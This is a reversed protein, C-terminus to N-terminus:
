SVQLVIKGFKGATFAMEFAKKAQELPLVTGVVAKVHGKDILKGLEVLQGRNSKVIFFVGRVGLEPAPQEISEGAISVLVGGRKLLPWSHQQTDGGLSDLVVDLDAAHDEFRQKTYDIVEDAGLSKVLEINRPHATTIVHAGIFRALQIAFTGVGGAGGHILIRQGKKLHAHDFLAQWATLGSLPVSAAQIADLTTPKPALDAASVAIYEAATGNRFFSTLAYVPAGPTLNVVDPNAAVDPAFAEIIGCLEHGPISPTRSNGHEDTYTPGWDLENRTTGSALVRVLADGPQLTPMPADEFVVQEPGGPAHLRIAKM